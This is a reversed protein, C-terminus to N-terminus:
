REQGKGRGERQRARPSADWWIFQAFLAWLLFISIYPWWAGTVSGRSVLSALMQAMVGLTGSLLTAVIRLTLYVM